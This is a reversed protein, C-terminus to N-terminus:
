ALIGSHRNRFAEDGRFLVDLADALRTVCCFNPGRDVPRGAALPELLPRDSERGTTGPFAGVGVPLLDEVDGAFVVAVEDGAWFWSAVYVAAALLFLMVLAKKM